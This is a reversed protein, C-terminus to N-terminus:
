RDDSPPKSRGPQTESPEERPEAPESKPELKSGTEHEAEHSPAPASGSPPAEQAPEATPEPSPIETAPHGVSSITSVARQTWVAPNPSGTAATATLAMLITTAGALLFPAVRWAKIGVAPAQYRPQSWQPTVRDLATKLRWEFGPGLPDHDTNAM